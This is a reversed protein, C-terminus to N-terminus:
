GSKRCFGRQMGYPGFRAPSKLREWGPLNALVGNILRSEGPKIDGMNKGYLECWVDYACVKDLKKLEYQGTSAGARFSRRNELAWKHWDDPVEKEVFDAIMGEQPIFERHARQAEEASRNVEKSLFLPEGAQWRAKAEAWIQDREGALDEFVDKTNGKKKVDVPWFRRNGTTDRLIDYENSTGVFVCKRPHDNATKTFPVRYRDSTASIFKKISATDSRQFAQLEAIEAIWKGQIQEAPEKGDFTSVGDVFYDDGAMIRFLTSKGIGQDGCLILMNDFKVGPTMMRAVAAVFIKRTVTRVYATDEAALYTILLRDLREVGDWVLGDLYETIRNFGSSASFVGVASDINSRHTFNYQNEFYWYLGDGDSKADWGSGVHKVGRRTNWPLDGFVELMDTLQNYAIKGKLNPDNELIILANDITNLPLGTKPHMKLKLMWNIEAEPKEGPTATGGSSEDEGKRENTPTSIDEFDKRTQEQREQLQRVAVEPLNVAYKSMEVFSPLKNTPCDAKAQDDLDGYKNLRVLDFANVLRGSCPDTAHHSFAFKGHDYVVVGGTTSGGLYTYRDSEACAGYIGPLLEEMARYVNYVRCFVGVIGPKEEPDGQKAALKQYNFSGPVQPWANINHWDTYTSLLADVSAFPADASRFVYESDACCSPWYMLRAVEFTTRDAMAIGIYEAMRRACPEYEEPTMTRDTPVLVRLRPANPTHKRTSYVCYSCALKDLTAIVADTQWAPITDFDLTIVDRGLVGGNKRRGPKLEGGVFGGVDKLDDQEVKKLRIYEALMEVGRKPTACRGYLESVLMKRPTWRLDKRSNGTSITIQRDHNM